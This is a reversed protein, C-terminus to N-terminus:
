NFNLRSSHIETQIVTELIQVCVEYRPGPLGKIENCSQIRGRHVKFVEGTRKKDSPRKAMKISIDSDPPLAQDIEFRIERRTQDLTKFQAQKAKTISEPIDTHSVQLEMPFFDNTKVNGSISSLNM